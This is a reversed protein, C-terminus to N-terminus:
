SHNILNSIGLSKAHALLSRDLSLLPCKHYLSCSLMYADYAYIGLQHALELAHQVDLFEKRIPITQYQSYVILAQDLRIRKRRFMASLANGLEVDISSPAILQAGITAQLIKEKSSENLLIALVASTDLTVKM